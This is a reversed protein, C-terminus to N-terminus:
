TKYFHWFKFNKIFRVLQKRFIPKHVHWLNYELRITRCSFKDIEFYLVFNMLIYERFHTFINLCDYHFMFKVINLWVRIHWLSINLPQFFITRCICMCIPLCIALRISLCVSVPLHNKWHNTSKIQFITSIHISLEISPLSGIFVKLDTTSWKFWGHMLTM